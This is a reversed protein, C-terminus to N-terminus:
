LCLTIPVNHWKFNAFTIRGCFLMGNKNHNSCDKSGCKGSYSQLTDKSKKVEDFIENLKNLFIEKTADQCTLNEDLILELSVLDMATIAQVITEKKRNFVKVDGLHLLQQILKQQEPTM